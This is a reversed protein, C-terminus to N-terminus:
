FFYQGVYITDGDLLRFSPHDPDTGAERANIQFRHTKGEADIRTVYIRPHAFDNLKVPREKWFREITYDAPLNYRGGQGEALGHGRITVLITSNSSATSLASPKSVNSACGFCFVLVLATILLKM